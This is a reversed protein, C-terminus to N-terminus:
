TVKSVIRSLLEEFSALLIAGAICWLVWQVALGTEVKRTRSNLRDLRDQVGKVDAQVDDKLERIADLIIDTHIPPTM